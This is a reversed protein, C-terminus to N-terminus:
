AVNDVHGDGHKPICEVEVSENGHRSFSLLGSESTSDYQRGLTVTGYADSKLGVFAQHNFMDDSNHFGGNNLDFGSEMMFIAKLGGGLDEAGRLGFYNNSLNGSGQQWVSKGGVNNAYTIGADISGYLTVSSQAHASVAFTGVACALIIHQKM